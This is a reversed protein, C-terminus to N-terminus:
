AKAPRLDICSTPYKPETTSAALPLTYAYVADDQDAWDTGQYRVLGILGRHELRTSFSGDRVAANEERCVFGM